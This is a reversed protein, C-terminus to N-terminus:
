ILPGPGGTGQMGELKAVDTRGERIAIDADAYRANGGDVRRRLRRVVVWAAGLAAFLASFWHTRTMMAGKVSHVM